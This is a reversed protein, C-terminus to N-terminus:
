PPTQQRRYESRKMELYDPRDVEHLQTAFKETADFWLEFRREPQSAPPLALAQLYAGIALYYRMTNREVLGRPGHIYSPKGDVPPGSTSFGVKSAGITSLYASLAFQGIGGFGFSYGMHIFTRGGDLPVAEVVIRYDRTGYPGEPADMEVDFYDPKAEVARWSFTLLTAQELQQDHKSGQRVQLKVDPGASGRCYKTNLHLILIDCWNAPNTRAPSAVTFLQNVVGWADGQTSRSSEVSDLLLPGGFPSNKLQPEIAAYKARLAPAKLAEVAQAPAPALWGVLLALLLAAVAPAGGRAGAAPQGGTGLLADIEHDKHEWLGGLWRQFAIRFSADETYDGACFEDPIPLERVRVVIRRARGCLFQWFDPAGGPYVITADILSHFREGM